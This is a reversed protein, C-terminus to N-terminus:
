KVGVFRKLNDEPIYGLSQRIAQGKEFYILTPISSVNYRAALEEAQDVDVM